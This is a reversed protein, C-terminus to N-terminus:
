EARPTLPEDTSSPPLLSPAETEGTDPNTQEVGLRDIVSSNSSKQAAIVTMGLSAAMFAAGLIWTLRTLASAAARGSMVGGGAGGGGGGLGIGGESRQLLVVGILALALLLLVILLVNEM